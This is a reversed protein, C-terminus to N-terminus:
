IIQTTVLYKHVPDSEKESPTKWFLTITIQGSDQVVVTPPNAAAGPLTAQVGPLWAQYAVNTATAASNYRAQLTGAAHNDVWMQGILQNALLVADTRYKSAAAQRSSSAQMGVLAMIGVSFILIGFLAELLMSGQQLKVRLLSRTKM